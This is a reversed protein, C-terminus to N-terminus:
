LWGKTTFYADCSVLFDRKSHFSYRPLPGFQVIPCVVIRAKATKGDYTCPKMYGHDPRTCFDYGDRKTLDVAKKWTLGM